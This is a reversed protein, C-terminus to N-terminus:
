TDKHEANVVARLFRGCLRACADRMCRDPDNENKQKMDTYAKGLTRGFEEIEGKTPNHKFTHVCNNRIANLKKIGDVCQANLGGM